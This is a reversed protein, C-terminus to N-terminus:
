SRSRHLIWINLLMQTMKTYQLNSSDLILLLRSLQEHEAHHQILQAKVNARHDEVILRDNAQHDEAILRANAQLDEATRHAWLAQWLCARELPEM